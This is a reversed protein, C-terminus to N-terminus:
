GEGASPGYLRHAVSTATQACITEDKKTSEEATHRTPSSPPPYFGKLSTSLIKRHAATM